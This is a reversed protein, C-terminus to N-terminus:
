REEVDDISRGMGWLLIAIVGLWILHGGSFFGLVSMFMYILTLLCMGAFALDLAEKM